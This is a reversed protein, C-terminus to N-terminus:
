WFSSGNRWFGLGAMAGLDLSARVLNPTSRQLGGDGSNSKRRQSGGLTHSHLGKHCKMRPLCPFANGTTTSAPLLGVLVLTLLRRWRHGPLRTGLALIDSPGQHAALPIKKTKHHFLEKLPLIDYLPTWGTLIFSKPLVRVFGNKKSRKDLPSQGEGRQIEQLAEKMEKFQLDVVQSRVWNKVNGDKNM